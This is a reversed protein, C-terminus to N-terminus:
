KKVEGESFIKTTGSATLIAQTIGCKKCYIETYIIGNMWNCVTDTVHVFEHKGNQCINRKATMEKEYDRDKCIIKLIDEATQKATKM